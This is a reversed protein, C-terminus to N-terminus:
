IATVCAYSDDCDSKKAAEKAKEWTAEDGV